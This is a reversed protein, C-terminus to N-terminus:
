VGAQGRDHHCCTVLRAIGHSNLSGVLRKGGHHLATLCRSNVVINEIGTDAEPGGEPRNVIVPVKAVAEILEEPVVAREKGRDGPLTKDAVQEAPFWLVPKGAAKGDGHDQEPFTGREHPRMIYLLSNIGDADEFAQHFPSSCM